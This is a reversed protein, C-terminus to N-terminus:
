LDFDFAVQTGLTGPLNKPESLTTTDIRETGTPVLPNVKPSRDADTDGRMVALMAEEARRIALRDDWRGLYHAPTYFVERVEMSLTNGVIVVGPINWLSLQLYCMLASMRDVDQCQVWLKEAPNHRHEILVKTFALIMGGAGCAPECVMLFPRNLKAILDSATIRAMLESLAPPTFFQGAKENHIELEMYMQGLADWPEIDLIEILEGLLKAFRDVDDRKYHGVIALYEAELKDNKSIVNHLSIASVTVFDRFVEYRHRHPAIEGSLRIFRAWQPGKRHSM